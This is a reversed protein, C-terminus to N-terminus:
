ECWGTRLDSQTGIRAEGIGEGSGGRARSQSTAGRPTGRRGSRPVESHLRRGERRDTGHRCTEGYKVSVFGLSMKSCGPTVILSGM